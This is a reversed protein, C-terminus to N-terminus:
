LRTWIALVLMFRRTSVEVAWLARKLCVPVHYTCSIDQVLPIRPVFRCTRGLYSAFSRFPGDHSRGSANPISRIHLTVRRGSTLGRCLRFARTPLRASGHSLPLSARLLIERSWGPFFDLSRRSFLPKRRCPVVQLCDHLDNVVWPERM